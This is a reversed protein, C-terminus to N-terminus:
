CGKELIFVCLDMVFIYKRCLHIRYIHNGEFSFLLLLLHANLVPLQGIPPGPPLHFVRCFLPSPPSLTRVVLLLRLALSTTVFPSNCCPSRPHSIPASNVLFWSPHGSTAVPVSQDHM